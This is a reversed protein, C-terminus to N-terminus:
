CRESVIAFRSRSTLTAATSASFTTRSAASVVGAVTARWHQGRAQSYEAKVYVGDGNQACRAKSRSAAIRISRTRRAASSRGADARPRARFTASARPRTVRKAPMAASSCGSAPRASWSSWTCCTSTPRRRITSTFYAAKAKSRSGAADARGRRRRVIADDSLPARAQVRRAAAGARADINPLHNFGDFFSLSYELRTARRPELSHRRRATPFVAGVDVVTIPAPTPPLATWRQDLLPIRSPTFRPVWVAEFTHPASSARRRPRRHRRPVRHRHREPLRAARLPRDAHRHRDQGLPHVAQRRRRHAPRAHGDRDLRRVSLARGCRAAIASTSAGATTSRITRTRRPPRPRRRVAALRGAQRLSRRAGAPRRRRQEITRARGAPVAFARGEVFGRQSLTQAAAPTAGAASLVRVLAVGIPADRSKM